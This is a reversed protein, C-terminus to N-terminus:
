SRQFHKRVPKTNVWILFAIASLTDLLLAGQERWSHELWSFLNLFAFLYLLILIWRAWNKGQWFYWYLVSTFLLIFQLSNRDLMLLYNLLFISTLNLSYFVATIEFFHPSRM